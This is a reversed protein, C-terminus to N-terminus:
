SPALLFILPTTYGCLTMWPFLYKSPYIGERTESSIPVLFATLYRPLSLLQSGSGIGVGCVPRSKLNPSAISCTPCFIIAVLFSQPQNRISDSNRISLYCIDMERSGANLDASGSVIIENALFMCPLSCNNWSALQTVSHLSM